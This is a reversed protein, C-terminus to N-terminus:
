ATTNGYKTDCDSYGLIRQIHNYTCRESPGRHSDPCTDRFPIRPGINNVDLRYLVAKLVAGLGEGSAKMGVAVLACVTGKEEMKKLNKQVSYDVTM